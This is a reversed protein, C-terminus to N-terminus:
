LLGSLLKLCLCGKSRPGMGESSNPKGSGFFGLRKEVLMRGTGEPTERSVRIVGETGLDPQPIPASGHDASYSTAKEFLM